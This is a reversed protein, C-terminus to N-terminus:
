VTTMISSPAILYFTPIFFATIINAITIIAPNAPLNRARYMSNMGGTCVDNSSTPYIHNPFLKSPPPTGIFQDASSMYRPSSTLSHFSPTSSVPYWSLPPSPFSLTLSKSASTSPYRDCNRNTCGYKSLGGKNPNILPTILRSTLTSRDLMIGTRLTIIAAIASNAPSTNTVAQFKPPQGAPATAPIVYATPGPNTVDPRIAKGSFKKPNHNIATISSRPLTAFLCVFHHHNTTAITSTDGKILTDPSTTPPAAAIYRPSTPSFLLIHTAAAAATPPNNAYRTYPHHNPPSKITSISSCCPLLPNAPGTIISDRIIPGITGIFSRSPHIIIPNM